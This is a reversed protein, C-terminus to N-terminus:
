QFIGPPELWSRIHMLLKGLRNYGKGECIGWFVDGWNNTEELHKPKTALLKEKYEPILFKQTLLNLMVITKVEEWDTRLKVANGLRKVKGPDSIHLIAKRYEPDASKAAQYAHEVTPYLDGELWVPSPAFNSLFRYEEFFGKIHHEDEITKMFVM